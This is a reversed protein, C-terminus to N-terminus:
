PTAHPRVPHRRDFLEEVARYLPDGRLALASPDDIAKKAFDKALGRVEDDTFSDPDECRRDRVAVLAAYLEDEDFGLSGRLKGAVSCLMQRREGLGFLVRKYDQSAVRTRKGARWADALGSPIEPLDGPPGIRAIQVYGFSPPIHVSGNFAKCELGPRIHHGGVLPDTSPQRYWVHWGGSKTRTIGCGATARDWSLGCDACCQEFDSRGDLGNKQELDFVCTGEPICAWDADPRIRTFADVEAHSLRKEKWAIIPRSSDNVAKRPTWPILRYGWRALEKIHSNRDTM